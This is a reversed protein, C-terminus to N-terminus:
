KKQIVKKSTTKFADTVAQTAHDLCKQSYKSSLNKNINKGINKGINKDSSLFETRLFVALLLIKWKLAALVVVSGNLILPFIVTSVPWM